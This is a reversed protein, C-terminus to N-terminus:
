QHAEAKKEAAEQAPTKNKGGYKGKGKGDKKGKEGKPNPPEWPRWQGKGRFKEELEVEKQMMNLEGRDSLTVEDSDILELYKAKKWANGDQVSQELAKIRQAIIDAAKNGADEALHDLIETLVRLERQTRPSWRDKLSPTLITLFYALACPKVSQAGTGTKHVGGGLRCVKEMRQLLRTALRGPHRMAYRQLRLHLTLGSPAKHFSQSSSTEDSDSEDGEEADKRMKKSEGMGFPGKDTELKEIGRKGSKKKKKKKRKDERAEKAAHKSKKKKKKRKKADGPKKTGPRGRGKDDDDEDEKGHDKKKKKKRKKEKEGKEDGSPSDGWDVSGMSREDEEESDSSSSSSEDSPDSGGNDGGGRGLGGGGFSGPPTPKKKEKRETRRPMSRSPSRSTVRKLEALDAKLQSVKKGPTEKAKEGAEPEGADGARAKKTAPTKLAPARPALKLERAGGKWPLGGAAAPRSGGSERKFYRAILGRAEGDYEEPQDGALLEDEKWSRWKGLHIVLGDKRGAECTAPDGKCFHYSGDVTSPRGAKSEAWQRYYSDSASIWDGLVMRGLEGPSYLRKVRILITGQDQGDDDLVKAEVLQDKVPSAISGRGGVWRSPM